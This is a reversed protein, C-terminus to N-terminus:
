VAFSQYQATSFCATLLRPAPQVWPRVNSRTRTSYPPEHVHSSHVRHLNLEVSVGISVGRERVVWFVLGRWPLLGNRPQINSGSPGDLVQVESRVSILGM